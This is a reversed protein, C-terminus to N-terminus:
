ESLGTGAVEDNDDGDQREEDEGGCCGFSTGDAENDDEGQGIFLSLDGIENEGDDV